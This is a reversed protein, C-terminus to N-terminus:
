TTETFRHFANAKSPVFTPLLRVGDTVDKLPFSGAQDQEWAEVWSEWYVPVLSYMLQRPILTPLQESLAGTRALPELLEQPGLKYVAEARFDPQRWVVLGNSTVDYAVEVNELCSDIQERVLLVGAMKYFGALATALVQVQNRNLDPLWGPEEVGALLWGARDEFTIQLSEKSLDPCTLEIRVRNSALTIEGLGLRLPHWGKSGELLKVLERVVFRHIGEEVHHLAELQKHVSRWAGTRYMGREAKRIRAFLKPLTGSHIGPRLLRVMTEGHHGIRLPQLAKPRNARYLRWNEKLEWVIFGFIGPIFFLTVAACSIAVPGGLPSFLGVLLPFVLPYAPLMIKHGVTVVPFHKIPNVTPEILLNIYIRIIYTVFFWIAGLVAKIVLSLRSEGSKFRLWEDVSYLLRDVWELIWKFLDMIAHFIGPLVGFRIRDLVRLLWDTTAEQLDHGFRSNLVLVCALFLGASAGLSPVLDYGSEVLLPWILIALVLSTFLYRYFFVLPPSQLLRALSSLRIVAAPIDYCIGRIALWTWKLGRGVARRFVPVHFLGFLFLGVGALYVPSLIHRELATEEAHEGGHVVFKHYLHVIEQVAKLAVFAGGFPLILFLTLFRGIVTGFALSSFSQLWRMYIEGRRYVGDLTISLERDIRLLKDGRLFEGVSALDPLKLGNRSVTDRLDGMKLFGREVIRDLLEEILKNLAIGEPYSRPTLGAKELVGAILPRFRDRLRVECRHVASRLLSSLRQRDMDALRVRPLRAMAKRLHKVLHAERLRPLPRKVPRRGFTVAWEVLDVAYIGREHEVCARQLDYLLRAEVPWIGGAAHELLPRLAKRWEGLDSAELDLASQLRTVLADLEGQGTDGDGNVADAPRVRAAREKYIAARVVNGLAATKEAKKLLRQYSSFPAVARVSPRREAAQTDRAAALALGVSPLVPNEPAGALRTRAFIERADLDASLLVDVRDYDRIAPFFHPLLFSSFFRLELYVAAFEEYVTWDDPPPLSYKEQQLVRRVEDFEAGGLQHIRRQIEAPCSRLQALKRALAEHVRCHFLLRWYKILAQEGPMAALKSPHPRAILLLTPPLDSGDSIGLEDRAVIELLKERSIVHSKRHPVRLGLGPPHRDYKIVRRLFRPKILFAAPDAAKLTKELEVLEM